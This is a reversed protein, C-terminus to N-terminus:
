ADPSSIYPQHHENLENVYGELGQSERELYDAVAHQFREDALWHASYTMTPLFGRALKHEGQAGGEFLQIGREICFEITQYYCLEFHLNPIAKLAGWYRGYFTTSTFVNLTSAVPHDDQYAIVMLLHEAMSLGIQKFFALNLYPTSGHEFYTNSYCQYFFEWDDKTIEKGTKRICEIGLAVVKRREAKIKKRKSQTLSELFAAFDRYGTNRWHFQVGQRIL